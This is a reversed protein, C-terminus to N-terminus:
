QSAGTVVQVRGFSDFRRTITRLVNGGADLTQEQIRNGADDLVYKTTNGGADGNATLRHAADYTMVRAAGSPATASKLQGALDYANTTTLGGVTSTLLRGRLDYANVTAVGNADTAQLLRGGADYQLYRVVQGVANTVQSPDGLTHSASTDIFYVYTTTDDIDTRPGKLTLMQGQRNYTMTTQRPAVGGQAAAATGLRGDADTTAVEVKRCLVVIPKGDPLLADVPACSALAGGNFPDPQGNYIWSTVKGPEARKVEIDQEPHWITTIKRVGAVLAANDPTYTACTSTKAVGEVRVLELKRTQDNVYCTAVGTFDRREGLSGSPDYASTQSVTGTCEPTSCPRSESAVRAIGNAVTTTWSRTAQTPDVVQPVGGPYSVAYAGITGPGSTSTPTFTAGDYTYYSIRVGLEDVIGMLLNPNGVAFNDDATYLYTRIGADAYQVTRPNGNLFTYKVLRGDPPTIQLLLGKTSYDYLLSRGFADLASRLLGAPVPTAPDDLAAAGNPGSTGDTYAFTIRKGDLYSISLLTGAADYDEFTGDPARYRWGITTQGSKNETLKGRQYGLATWSGSVKRFKITDGYAGYIGVANNSPDLVLQRQYNHRWYPGLIRTTLSADAGVLLALGSSSYSRVVELVSAESPALDVEQQEKAKGLVDIPNGVKLCCDVPQRVCYDYSPGSPPTTFGAPCFSVRGWGVPWYSFGDPMPKGWSYEVDCVRGNAPNWDGIVKYKQAGQQGEWLGLYPGSPPYVETSQYAVSCVTFGGITLGGNIFDSWDKKTARFGDGAPTYYWGFNRGLGKICEQTGGLQMCTPGWQPEYTAGDKWTDAHASLCGLGALGLILNLLHSRVAAKM